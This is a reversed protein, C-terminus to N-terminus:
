HPARARPTSRRAMAYPCSALRFANRRIAVNFPTEIDHTPDGDVPLGTAILDDVLGLEDNHAQEAFIHLASWTRAHEDYPSLALALANAGHKQLLHFLARRNWRVSELLPTPGAPGAPGAPQNLEGTRWGSELIIECAEDHAERAAFHLLTESQGDIKFHVLKTKEQLLALTSKFQSLYNAGNRLITSFKDSAHVAGRVLPGYIVAHRLDKKGETTMPTDVTRELHDIMIKLCESHHYFAAWELPSLGGNPFRWSPDPGM